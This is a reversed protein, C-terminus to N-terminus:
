GFMHGNEKHPIKVEVVKVGCESFVSSLDEETCKFSINRVILRSKRLTNQSVGKTAKSLVSIHVKKLKKLKSLKQLASKTNKHTDFTVLGNIDAGESSVSVCTVGEVGECFSTLQEETIDEPLKKLVLTKGIGFRAESRESKPKKLTKSNESKKATKTEYDSEESSDNDHHDDRDPLPHSKKSRALMVKM